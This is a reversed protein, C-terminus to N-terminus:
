RRATALLETLTCKGGRWLASRAQFELLAANYKAQKLRLMGAGDVAVPKRALVGALGARKGTRCARPKAFCSGGAAHLSEHQDGELDHQGSWVLTNDKPVIQWM